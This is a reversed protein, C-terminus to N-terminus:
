VLDYKQKKRVVTPQSVGLVEAAKHTSGYKDLAKKIIDKEVETVAQKLPIIDPVEIELDDTKTKKIKNPLCGVEIKDQSAMVVFREILNELERVNGPWSYEELVNIAPLSIKRNTGYEQNFKQFFNYILPAIDEKRERLPPVYIPVVNLRYYLDERFEGEEMMQKLNRNTAAIIRPNVEFSETGGVRMIEGEQLARLLKVQLNMPLEGIEDLFLTGDDALEFMGPKGEAKAGTFAGEEYGFLEAEILNDPIAGCNLKILSNNRRSSSKHITKAVIEKGVGSEGIILVTSDAKAVQLAVNFVKEIKESKVVVNEIDLQQERLKELESYYRQSMKKTEELEEKLQNLEELDRVTTVVRVIEGSEDFVPTGTILVEKGTKIEHMITVPEEEELVLLTVSQSYVGEDVLDKMHEGLVEEAEIGTIEEYASNIRLTNGVGDTIYLGDSVSEIIGDLEKNLKKVRDLEESVEELDSIDQFIAMSGKVEGEKIIPTRNTLATVEGVKVKEGFEREGSNLVELLGTNPIVKKVYEGVADESKWGLIEEGAQNLTTIIGQEDIAVIGNHSSDLITNVERATEKAQQSFAEVLDTRTLIGVVTGQEDVVPLRGVKIQWAEEITKDPEIKVVEETMVKGIAKDNNWGNAVAKMLHAKTFIGSLQQDDNVIPAGDIQEEYFVAAAEKISDQESFIIPDPTMVEAVKM